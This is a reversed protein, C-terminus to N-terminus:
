ISKQITANMFLLATQGAMNSLTMLKKESSALRVMASDVFDKLKTFALQMSESTKRQLKMIAQTVQLLCLLLFLSVVMRTM